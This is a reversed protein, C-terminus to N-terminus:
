IASVSECGSPCGCRHAKKLDKLIGRRVIDHCNACLKVEITKKRNAHHNQLVVPRSDGCVVCTDPKARISQKVLYAVKEPDFQNDYIKRWAKKGAASAKETDKRQTRTKWAKEGAEIRTRKDAAENAKQYNNERETM